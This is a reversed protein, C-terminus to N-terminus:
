RGERVDDRAVGISRTDLVCVVLMAVRKALDGGVEVAAGGRDVPSEAGSSASGGDQPDSHSIYSRVGVRCGDVSARVQVANGRTRYGLTLFTLGSGVRTSRGSGSFSM